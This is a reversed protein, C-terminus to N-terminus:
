YICKRPIGLFDSELDISLLRSGLRTASASAIEEDAGLQIFSSRLVFTSTQLHL